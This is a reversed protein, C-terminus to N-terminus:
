EKTGFYWFTGFGIGIYAIWTLWTAMASNGGFSYAPLAVLVALVVLFIGFGYLRPINIENCAFQAGLALPYVIAYFVALATIWVTVPVVFLLFPYSDSEAIGPVGGVSQFWLVLHCIILAVVTADTAHTIRKFTVM